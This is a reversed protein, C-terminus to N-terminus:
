TACANMYTWKDEGEVRRELVRNDINYTYIYILVLRIDLYNNNTEM